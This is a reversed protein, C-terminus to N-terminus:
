KGLARIAAIDVSLRTRYADEYLGIADLPIPRFGIRASLPADSSLRFDGRAVDRLELDGSSEEINGLRDFQDESPQGYTIFMPGCKWFVNRWAFNLGPETGLRRMDPYRSLYLDSMILAPDKGLREWHKNGSNYKGTIGKECEAFLNNDIINDRGGNIQIGGFGQSARQFINGYVLMGSIADDLRIAARGSPGEMGERPGIDSFYNHRFVVGRYTPNGFGEMAGQDESELIARYVRNYEFSHDNGEFRVVSSPCDGMLNHAVRNGCGELQVAPVYTHDLRGFSHIWCNEVFHGGPTLTRRDGGIVETARRGLSYLDCGLIGNQRGGTMTIGNGAFRRVTCGAVLCRECDRILLGSTRSLDFTLGEIRVHAVGELSLMPVTLMGVEVTADRPDSPPYVYLIGADRDLYWEGPQDMEELLNFVYYKIRGKNFWTVPQMNESGLAYPSCALRKSAPDISRIKLTRDAWGHRFYGFLWADESRTWRAHRQDLYEFVSPRDDRKSGPDVITGGNVFGSNPWRAITLPEGNFFLELTTSPPRVGYGREVLEGFDTVGAQKLDCQWVKDQAEDPLREIIKPDTVPAFGSLRKGGYLVATGPQDARYVIPAQETGSDDATLEITKQVPYEGPLLSVGVPGPLKESKLKRIADRAHELTAFPQERTGPNSDSGHPSVFLEVAFRPVPPVNTRSATPDRAPLGRGVRELEALCEAAELRHVEPYSAEAKIREYEAMAVAANKEAAYTQAIRLHAYSRVHPPAQAATLAQRFERRAAEVDGRTWAQAGAAFYGDLETRNRAGSEEVASTAPSDRAVREARTSGPRPKRTQEASSVGPADAAQIAASTLLLIISVRRM